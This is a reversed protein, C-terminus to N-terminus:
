AQWDEISLGVVREFEQTNYTVLIMDRAKAQGAILIDYPGIPTGKTALLARIAGAQRADERDFELVEFQLADVLALNPESRQSKFAGYFLEHAVISSICVRAPTFQRIRQSPRSDRDNLLAIVTNTDLLYRKV